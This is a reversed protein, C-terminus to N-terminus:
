RAKWLIAKRGSKTREFGAPEALGIEALEHRRTRIGSHSQDSHAVHRTISILDADIVPGFRKLVPYVEAQGPTLKSLKSPMPVAGKTAIVSKLTTISGVRSKSQM